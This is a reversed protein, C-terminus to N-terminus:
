WNSKFRNDEVMELDM